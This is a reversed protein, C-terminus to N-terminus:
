RQVNFLALIGLTWGCFPESVTDVVSFTWAVCLIRHRKRPGEDPKINGKAPSVLLTVVKAHIRRALRKKPLFLIFDVPQTSPWESTRESTVESAGSM